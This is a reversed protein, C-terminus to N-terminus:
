KSRGTGTSISHSVGDLLNRSAKGILMTREGYGTSFVKMALVAGRRKGALPVSLALEPRERRRKSLSLGLPLIARERKKGALSMAPALITGERRWKTTLPLDLPVVGERRRRALSLRPFLAGRKGVDRGLFLM